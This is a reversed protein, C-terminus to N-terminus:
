NRKLLTDRAKTLAAAAETNGGQDPHAAAMKQRYASRIAENSANSGVGLLARAREVEAPETGHATRPRALYLGVGAFVLAGGWRGAMLLGAAVGLAAWAKWDLRWRVRRAGLGFPLMVALAFLAAVIAIGIVATM